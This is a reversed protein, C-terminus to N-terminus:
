LEVEEVFRADEPLLGREALYQLAEMIEEHSLRTAAYLSDLYIPELPHRHMEELVSEHVIARILGHNYLIKTDIRVEIVDRRSPQVNIDPHTITM